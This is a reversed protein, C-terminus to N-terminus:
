PHEVIRDHPTDATCMCRVMRGGGGRPVRVHDYVTEKM